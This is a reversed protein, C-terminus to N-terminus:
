GNGVACSNEVNPARGLDPRERFSRRLEGNEVHWRSQGRACPAGVHDAGIAPHKRKAVTGKIDDEAVRDNLMNSAAFILAQKGSLYRPYSLVVPNLSRVSAKRKLVMHHKRRDVKQWLAPLTRNDVAEGSPLMQHPRGCVFAAIVEVM